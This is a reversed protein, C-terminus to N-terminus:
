VMEMEPEVEVLENIEIDPMDVFWKSEYWDNGTEVFQYYVKKHRECCMQDNAVSVIDGKKVAGPIRTIGGSM